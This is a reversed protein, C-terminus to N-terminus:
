KTEKKGTATSLPDPDYGIPCANGMTRQRKGGKLSNSKLVVLPTVSKLQSLEQLTKM